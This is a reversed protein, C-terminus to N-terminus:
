IQSRPASGKNDARGEAVLDNFFEKFKAANHGIPRQDHVKPIGPTSQLGSLFDDDNELLQLRFDQLMSQTEHFSAMSVDHDDNLISTNAYEEQPSTLVEMQSPESLERELQELYKERLMSQFQQYYDNSITAPKATKSTESEPVEDILTEFLSNWHEINLTEDLIKIKGWSDWGKPVTLSTYDDVQLTPKRLAKALYSLLYQFPTPTDLATKAFVLSGGTKLVLIRLLQQLKDIEVQNMLPLSDLSDSGMFLLVYDVGLVTDCEGKNKVVTDTEVTTTYTGLFSSVASEFSKIVMEDRFDGGFVMRLRQCIKLNDRFVKELSFNKIYEELDLVNVVTLDKIEKFRNLFQAFLDPATLQRYNFTYIDLSTMTGTSSDTYELSTYKLGFQSMGNSKDIGSKSSTFLTKSETSNLRKLRSAAQDLIHASNGLILVTRETRLTESINNRTDEWLKKWIGGTTSREAKLSMTQISSRLESSSHLCKKKREKVIADEQFNPTLNPICM